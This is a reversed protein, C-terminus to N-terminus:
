EGSDIQTSWPGPKERSPLRQDTRVPPFQLELEHVLDSLSSIADDDIETDEILSKVRHPLKSRARRWVDSEELTTEENTFERWNETILQHEKYSSYKSM